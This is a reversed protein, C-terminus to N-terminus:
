LVESGNESRTIDSTTLSHIAYFAVFVGSVPLAGYMTAMSIGTAPAVQSLTLNVVQIGGGIMLVIAIILLIINSLIEIIRQTKKHFKERIFLIAIHKKQGFVYAASTLSFWILLMRIIEESVTSPTNLVYRAIVQWISLIAMVTLLIGTVILLLKDILNKIKSM